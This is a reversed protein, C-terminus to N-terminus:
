SGVLKMAHGFFSFFLRKLSYLNTVHCSRYFSSYLPFKRQIELHKSYIICENENTNVLSINEFPHLDKEEYLPNPEQGEGM